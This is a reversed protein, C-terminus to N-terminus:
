AAPPVHVENFLKVPASTEVVPGAALPANSGARTHPLWTPVAVRVKM